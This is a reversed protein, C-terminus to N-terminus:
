PMSDDFLTVHHAHIAALRPYRYVCVVQYIVLRPQQQQQQQRQRTAQWSSHPAQPSSQPARLKRSCLPDVSEHSRIRGARVRQHAGPLAPSQLSGAWQLGRERLVCRASADSARRPLKLPLTWLATPLTGEYTRGPPPALKLV